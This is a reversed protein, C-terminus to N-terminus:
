DDTWVNKFDPWSWDTMSVGQLVGRWRLTQRHHFLPSLWNEYQMTTALSELKNLYEGVECHERIKVLEQVLWSRAEESLGQHLIANSCFWRFVSIPLNDDVNLSAIILTEELDNREAQENLESFSYVNVQSEIGIQNLKSSLAQACDLIVLHDYIAIDLRNPLEAEDLSQPKVKAWNPLLSYAPEAALLLESLGEQALVLEASLLTSLYKRQAYNLSTKTKNMNFLLYLCGNEIRSQTRGTGPEDSQFLQEPPQQEERADSRGFQIRESPTHDFQWITVTDTLSRLSFYHDFAQLRLRKDSQEIVQFPGCGDVTIGPKSVLQAPPQISYRLDSLLAAFGLDPSSLEFTVCQHSASVHVLHSLEQQYEPLSRLQTFLEGILEADIAVRSHFRLQPRIYFRWVTASDNHQWHHALQPGVHGSQDCTTLCAYVQRVLFRESNRLPKHPLLQNFIRQYTLQIHLQGERLSAGSTQQLLTSFQDQDGGLLKLANEYQGSGILHRALLHKLEVLSYHLHLISRQNRGVKPTWSLWGRDQLAQLLTRGHRATTCLIGAVESLSVMVDQKTGLPMLRSYYQFAREDKM